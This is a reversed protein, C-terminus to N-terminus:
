YYIYRSFRTLLLVSVVTHIIGEVRVYFMLLLASVVTHIIGEVRVYFM